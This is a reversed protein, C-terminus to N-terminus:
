ERELNIVSGEKVVVHKSHTGPFVFVQKRKDVGIDCGLLQTEEGRMVDKDTRVGSIIILDHEFERSKEMKKYNLDANIISYPLHKYKLEMMGISSSAMGSIVITISKLSYNVQKELLIIHEQLINRYYSFRDKEGSDTQQWRRYIIANGEESQMEAIISLSTVNILRLRFSTTGWDCSLFSKTMDM